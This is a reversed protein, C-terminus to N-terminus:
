KAGSSESSRDKIDASRLQYDRAFLCTSYGRSGNENGSLKETAKVKYTRMTYCVDRAPGLPLHWSPTRNWRADGVSSEHSNARSPPVASDPDSLIVAPQSFQGAESSSPPSTRQDDSGSAASSLAAIALMLPIQILRM